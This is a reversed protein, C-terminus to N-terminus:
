GGGPLAHLLGVTRALIGGRQQERPQSRAEAGPAGPPPGPSMEIRQPDKVGSSTVRVESTWLGHQDEYVALHAAHLCVSELPLEEKGANQVLVPATAVHPRAPQGEATRRASTELWYCLEGEFFSGFWTNSLRVTPLDIMRLPEADTLLELRVWVPLSVYIRASGHQLIRFAQEPRVVVSRDPTVPSLRIAGLSLEGAWRTWAATDPPPQVAAVTLGEAGADEWAVRWEQPTRAIWFGLPGIRWFRCQGVEFEFDGWPSTTSVSM